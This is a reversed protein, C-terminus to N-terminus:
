AWAKLARDYLAGFTRPHDSALMNLTGINPGYIWQDKYGNAQSYQACACSKHNEWTYGEDPDKGALWLKIHAPSGIEPRALM